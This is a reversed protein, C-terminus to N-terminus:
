VSFSACIAALLAGWTGSLLLHFGPAVESTQAAWTFNDAPWPSGFRLMGPSKGEFYANESPLSENRRYFTGPFAAGFMGFNEQPWTLLLRLMVKPRLYEKLIVAAERRRDCLAAVGSCRLDGWM